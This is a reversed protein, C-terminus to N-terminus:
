KINDKTCLTSKGSVRNFFPEKRKRRNKSKNRTMPLVNRANLCYLVNAKKSRRIYKMVNAQARGMTPKIIEYKADHPTIYKIAYM